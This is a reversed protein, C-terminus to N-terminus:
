LSESSDQSADLSKIEATDSLNVFTEGRKLADDIKRRAAATLKKNPLEAIKTALSVFKVDKPHYLQRVAKAFLIRGRSFMRCGSCDTTGMNSKVLFM